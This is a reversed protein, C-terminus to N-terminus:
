CSYFDIFDLYSNMEEDYTFVYFWFINMIYYESSM